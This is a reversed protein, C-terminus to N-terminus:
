DQHAGSSALGDKDFSAQFGTFNWSRLWPVGILLLIEWGQKITKQFVIAEMLRLGKKLLLPGLIEGLALSECLTLSQQPHFIFPIPLQIKLEANASTRLPILSTNKKKCYLQLM